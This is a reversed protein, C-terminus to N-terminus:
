RSAILDLAETPSMIRVGNIQGKRALGLESTVFADAGWVKAGDIHEGDRINRGIQREGKEGVLSNGVGGFGLLAEGLRLRGLAASPRPLRPLAKVYAWLPDGAFESHLEADLTRSVALGARGDRGAEILTRCDSEHREFAGIIVNTDLAFKAVL